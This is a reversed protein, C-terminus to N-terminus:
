GQGEEQERIEKRVVSVHVIGYLFTQWLEGPLPRSSKRLVGLFAVCEVAHVVALVWFLSRGFDALETSQLPPFFCATSILWIAGLIGKAVPYVSTSEM